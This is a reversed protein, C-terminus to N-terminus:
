GRTAALAHRTDGDIGQVAYTATVVAARASSLAARAADVDPQPLLSVVEIACKILHVATATLREEPYGGALVAQQAGRLLDLATPESRKAPIM